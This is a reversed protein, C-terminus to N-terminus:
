AQGDRARKALELLEQLIPRLHGNSRDIWGPISEMLDPDAAIADACIGTFLKLGDERAHKGIILAGTAAALVAARRTCRLIETEEYETIGDGRAGAERVIQEVNKFLTSGMWAQFVNRGPQPRSADETM